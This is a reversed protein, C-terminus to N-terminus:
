CSPLPQSLLLRMQLPCPPICSHHLRPQFPNTPCCHSTPINAMLSPLDSPIKSARIHLKYESLWSGDWPQLCLVLPVTLSSSLLSHAKTLPFGRSASSVSCPPPPSPPGHSATSHFPPPVIPHSLELASIHLPTARLTHYLVEAVHNM